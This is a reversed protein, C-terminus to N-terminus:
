QDLHNYQINLTNLDEITVVPSEKKLLRSLVLISVLKADNDSTFSLEEQVAPIYYQKILVRDGTKIMYGYGDEYVFVESYLSTKTPSMRVLIFFILFLTILTFICYIRKKQM